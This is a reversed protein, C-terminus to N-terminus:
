KSIQSGRMRIASTATMGITASNLTNPCDGLTSFTAFGFPTAVSSSDAGLLTREPSRKWARKSMRACFSMLSATSTRSEPQASDIVILVIAAIKM